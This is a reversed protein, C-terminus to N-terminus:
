LTTFLHIQTVILRLTIWADCRFKVFLILLYFYLIKMFAMISTERRIKVYYHINYIIIIIYVVCLLYTYM